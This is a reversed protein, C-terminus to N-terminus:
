YTPTPFDFTVSRILGSNASWFALLDRMSAQVVIGGVVTDEAVSRHLEVLEPESYGHFAVADDLATLVSDLSSRDSTSLDLPLSTGSRLTPLRLSLKSSGLSPVTALLEIAHRATVNTAFDIVAVTITNPSSHAFSYLQDFGSFAIM